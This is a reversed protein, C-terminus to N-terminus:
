ALRNLWVPRFHELTEFPQTVSAIIEGAQVVQGAALLGLKKRAGM